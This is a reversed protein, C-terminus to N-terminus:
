LCQHEHDTGILMDLNSDDNDDGSGGGDDGDDPSGSVVLVM